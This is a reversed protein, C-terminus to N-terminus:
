TGAAQRLLPQNIAEGADHRGPRIVEHAVESGAAAVGVTLTDEPRPVLLDDGDALIIM